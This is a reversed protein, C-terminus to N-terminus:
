RTRRRDTGTHLFGEDWTTLFYLSQELHFRLRASSSARCTAVQAQCSPVVQGSKSNRVTQQFSGPCTLSSLNTSLQVSGTFCQLLALATSVESRSSLLRGSGSSQATAPALIQWFHRAPTRRDQTKEHAQAFHM